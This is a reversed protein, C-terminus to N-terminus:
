RRHCTPINNKKISLSHNSMGKGSRNDVDKKVIKYLRSINHLEKRMDRMTKRLSRIRINIKVTEKKLLGTDSSEKFYKDVDKKYQLLEDPEMRQIEINTKCKFM